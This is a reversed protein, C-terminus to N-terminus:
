IGLNNDAADRPTRMVSMKVDGFHLELPGPMCTIRKIFTPQQLTEPQNSSCDNVEELKNWQSGAYM